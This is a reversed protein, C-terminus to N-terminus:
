QITIFPRLKEITKAGIGPVRNLDEVTIFRMKTREAIIREALKAGIGPLTLLVEVSASNINILTPAAKPAPKRELKEVSGDVLTRAAVPGIALWPRLKEVSKPGIGPLTDLEDISEFRGNKARHALITEAMAPGVGPIQLLEARDAANLNVPTAKVIRETPRAGFYPSYAKWALTVLLVAGLVAIM